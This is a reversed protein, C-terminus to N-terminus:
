LDKILTERQEALYATRRSMVKKWEPSALRKTEFDLTWKGKAEMRDILSGVSLRSLCEAPQYNTTEGKDGSTIETIIHIQTMEYLLENVIRIPISTRLKLDLATFPKGGNAFQKCIQSALVLCLLMKYRHSLDETKAKFAFDEMNQSAYCLEAGFLCILWSIQVWLMFMPLAAFSGYIANYSSVWIQSHIYFLQLGQMAVGALIGPAIACSIKVKTNPMFVYLAVFIGSMLMYPMLQLFFQMIPGLLMTDEIQKFITAFFISMGSTIVIMIPMLLLMSTYDTITRFLSRPKKVQWIYNFTQEINSVLMIVTFLMFILGVGLFLGSKTHVLYSNVFGVITEAAQPQSSFSSRFWEEIYKNYGFGRAIAFVVALIPVIALLTSYTLAAAASTIRKATTFEIALILKKLITCTFFKIPSMDNRKVSWIGVTLFKYTSQIKTKISM